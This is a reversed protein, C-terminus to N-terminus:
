HLPQVVPGAEMTGRWSGRTKVKRMKFDGALHLSVAGILRLIEVLFLSSSSALHSLPYPHNDDLRMSLEIGWLDVCYLLSSVEVTQGQDGCICWLMPEGMYMNRGGLILLYTLLYTFTLFLSLSMCM